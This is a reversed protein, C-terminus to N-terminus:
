CCTSDHTSRITAMDLDLQRQRYRAEAWRQFATVLSGFSGEVLNKAVQAANDRDPLAATIDPLVAIAARAAALSQDFTREASNHGCAPCFYAAGVVAFRCGCQECTIRLTMAEEAAPQIPVPLAPSNVELRM